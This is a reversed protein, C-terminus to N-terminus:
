IWVYIALWIRMAKIVYGFEVNGFIHELRYMGYYWFRLKYFVSPPRYHSQSQQRDRLKYSSDLIKAQHVM